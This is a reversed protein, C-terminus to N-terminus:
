FFLNGRWISLSLFLFFLCVFLRVEQSALSCLSTQVRRAKNFVSFAIGKMHTSLRERCFIEEMALWHFVLNVNAFGSTAKIIQGLCSNM